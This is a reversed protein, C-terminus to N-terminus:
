FLQNAAEAIGELDQDMMCKFHKKPCKQYGIKSCPRCSLAQVEFQMSAPHSRFPFMGFKPVTNGWVSLIKKHFAAGVHMLGTDHTILVHAQRVLSASQHIRYQGCSNLITKEPVASVLAEGTERDTPGGLVIVPHRLKKCLEILLAVPLKKTEHQAGISLGIYGNQFEKPLTSLDVAERGPIFYDLGGQDRESIFGSITDLNRDVMHRYPMRDLKLNVFLWKKWNLKRVTFDMRKLGYKLRASRANHHLDIIYDIQFTKLDRICKKMDGDFSHIRDVFPNAELLSAYDSKTLFHIEADEVEQKLHRMVPTTLIIDGISSFRVVLFKVM